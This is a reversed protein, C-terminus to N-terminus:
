LCMDFRGQVQDDHGEEKEQTEVSVTRYSVAPKGAVASHTRSAPGQLVSSSASSPARLRAGTSVGASPAIVLSSRHPQATM